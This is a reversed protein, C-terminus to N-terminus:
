KVVLKRTATKGEETVKVIYIGQNLNSINLANNLVKSNIIQKGLVDFVQIDLEANASTTFYLTNGNSPNPYMTLGDIANFARTELPMDVVNRAVVQATGNFEAVLVVINQAGVPVTLGIYNAEAFMTRFAIDSGDNLNFNSNTTFTLMGDATTFSAANIQVLESEYTEISATIDAATVVQPTITNSTSSSTIDEIPLLQLVGNFLSTQGKLGTMGDGIGFTNTIVNTNDDILIAGTADQIYKQNRTTRAYTVIAEGTIEYFKGAGNAIVDNRVDAITAMTNLAVVEFNVTANAAPAIPTHSDDVLEVYVTHPGVSLGTLSIPTTDYKMVTGGADVTYHIHGDGMGATAVAFNQVSLTVDVDTNLTTSGEIPSVIAISPASQAVFSFNDIYMVSQNGNGAWNAATDYFRLGITVPGTAGAVFTYTLTQWQNLMTDDSYPGDFVNNIVMRARSANDLQYVDVSVDYTVGAVVNITQQFDTNGQTQTTVTIKASKAGGNFIVSEEEVITGAESTWTDLVGVTWSEFDGNVALNQGFSLTSIFLLTLIYLKKM